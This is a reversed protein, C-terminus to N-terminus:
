LLAIARFNRFSPAAATSTSYMVIKISFANFSSYLAGDKTYTIDDAFYEYENYRSIDQNVTISDQRRTMLVYSDRICMESGM